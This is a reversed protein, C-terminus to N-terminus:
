PLTLHVVARPVLIREMQLLALHYGPRARVGERSDLCATLLYGHEARVAPVTAMSLTLHVVAELVLIRNTHRPAATAACLPTALGAAQPRFLMVVVGKMAVARWQWEM